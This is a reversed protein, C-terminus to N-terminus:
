TGADILLSMKMDESYKRGISIVGQHFHLQFFNNGRYHGFKGLIYATNCGHILLHIDNSFNFVMKPIVIGLQFEGFALPRKGDIGDEHRDGIAVIPYSRNQDFM